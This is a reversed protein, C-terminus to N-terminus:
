IYQVEQLIRTGISPKLDSKVVLDVQIQLEESLINELEILELLGIRSPRQIDVLVDIDSSNTESGKLFSGFIGIETIGYERLLPKKKTLYAKIEEIDKMVSESCLFLIFDIFFSCYGRRSGFFINSIFIAACLTPLLANIDDGISFKLFLFAFRM